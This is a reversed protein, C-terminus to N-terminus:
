KMINRENLAKQYKRANQMHENYNNTFNHSGSFDEKACMYLYNNHDYNLVADIGRISPIRIPGPPLGINMYTNYPSEYKLQELTVRHINFDHIAFIVTPDSQLPMDTHLRNIYLGAITAKEPNYSTESEVISALTTVEEITLGIEKAKAVREDNWFREKEKNLKEILKKPTVNWYVEYTNPIFICPVTEKKYGLSDIYLSDNLVDKLEDCSMMLLNSLKQVMDEVTRVEPVILKIPEQMGNAMHRTFTFMDEEPTIAFRGTKPADFGKLKSTLTFGFMNSVNGETKIKNYVSDMNDDNDIYVFTRESIKFPSSFLSYASYAAFLALVGIVACIIYIAKKM